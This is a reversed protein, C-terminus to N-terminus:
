IRDLEAVTLDSEADGTNLTSAPELLLVHVEADAYPRHAVGRPIIVFEGASIELTQQELEIKLQGELVLFLEDEREHQHKVFEGKFKALKVLQGNLAGVVKPTWQESFLGLKQALNVKEIMATEVM